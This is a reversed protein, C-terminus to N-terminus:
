SNPSSQIDFYGIMCVQAWGSRIANGHGNAITFLVVTALQARFSTGFRISLPSVTISQGDVEIVPHNASQYGADTEDLLGTAKSLSLVITDFVEPLDMRGALNACQKFGGIARQIVYEDQAGSTFASAIASVLPRWSSTFMFSDFVGTNCVM